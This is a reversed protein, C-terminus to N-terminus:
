RLEETLWEISLNFWKAAHPNDQWSQGEEMTSYRGLSFGHKGKEFIHAECRVDHDNLSKIYEISNSILVIPDDWAQFVFTAPTERTVGLATDRLKPDNPLYQEAGQPLPFGIHEINVLPYGLITKNPLVEKVHYGYKESYEKSNAMYNASGAVHGGASFGITVIKEPDINYDQAHDRYYKVTTLVDLAADPYIPGEQILNYDMIVSNFGYANYSLAVPEGERQSLHDFSGGPIVIMLPRKKEALNPNNELTYTHINFKRNNFNTLTLNEVKM